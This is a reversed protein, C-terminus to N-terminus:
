RTVTRRFRWRRGIVAFGLKRYLERPWDDEDAWLFTLEHGARRSADLAALVAAQAHGRGRHALRTQVDEIQGVAGDTYLKAFAAIAGDPALSVFAREQMARGVVADAVEIAAITAEDFGDERTAARRALVVDPAPVERVPQRPGRGAPVIGARMAVHREITWGKRALDAALRTVDAPEDVILM